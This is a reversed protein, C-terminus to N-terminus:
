NKKSKLKFIASLIIEGRKLKDINQLKLEQSRGMVKVQILQPSLLQGISISGGVSGTQFQLDELGTLRQKDAFIALKVLTVGSDAEIMAEEVGLGSTSVTGKVGFIKLSSSKNQIALGNFGSNPATTKSGTGFIFFNVGIRSAIDSAKILESINTAMYFLRAPGGIRTTLYDSLNVNQKVRLEGLTSIILKFKSEM